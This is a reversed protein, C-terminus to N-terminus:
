RSLRWPRMFARVKARQGRLHFLARTIEVRVGKDKIGTMIVSNRNKTLLKKGNFRTFRASEKEKESANKNKRHRM